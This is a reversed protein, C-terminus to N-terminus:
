DLGRGLDKVTQMFNILLYNKNHYETVQGSIKFKTAVTAGTSAAEMQELMRCPLLPMPPDQLAKGDAEFAFLYGNGTNDKILRGVRNWVPQGERLRSVAPQNPAVGPLPSTVNPNAPESSAPVAPAAPASTATNLLNNLAAEASNTTPAPATQPTNQTAPATATHQEPQPGTLSVGAGDEANLSSGTATLVAIALVGLIQRTM